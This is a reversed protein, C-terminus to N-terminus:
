HIVLKTEVTRGLPSLFNEVPLSSDAGGEALELLRSAASTHRRFM